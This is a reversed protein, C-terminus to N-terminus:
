REAAPPAINRKDIMSQVKAIALLASFVGVLAAIFGPWFHHMFQQQDLREEYSLERRISGQIETCIDSTKMPDGSCTPVSPVPFVLEILMFMIVTSVIFTAVALLWTTRNNM